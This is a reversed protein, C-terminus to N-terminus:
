LELKHNGQELICGDPHDQMAAKEWNSRYTVFFTAQELTETKNRVMLLIKFLDQLSFTLKETMDSEAVGHVIAQWAGGDM